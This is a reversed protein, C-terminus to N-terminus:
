NADDKELAGSDVIAYFAKDQLSMCSTDRDGAPSNNAIESTKSEKSLAQEQEELRTQIAEFNDDTENLNQDGSEGSEEDTKEKMDKERAISEKALDEMLSEDFKSDEVFEVELDSNEALFDM